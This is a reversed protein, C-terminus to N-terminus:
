DNTKIDFMLAFSGNKKHEAISIELGSGKKGNVTIAVMNKHKTKGQANIDLIFSDLLDLFDELPMM